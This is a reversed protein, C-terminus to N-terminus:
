APVGAAEALMPASPAVPRLDTYLGRAEDAPGRREALRAVQVVRIRNGWSFTLIDGPKVMQAAKTVPMRNLRILGDACLRAAQTRSKYFRACWLWKDLRQRGAEVGAAEVCTTDAADDTPLATALGVTGKDSLRNRHPHDTQDTAPRQTM